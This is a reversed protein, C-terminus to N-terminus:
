DESRPAETHVVISLVSNALAYERAGEESALELDIVIDIIDDLGVYNLGSTKRKMVNAVEVRIIEHETYTNDSMEDSVLFMIPADPHEIRRATLVGLGEM